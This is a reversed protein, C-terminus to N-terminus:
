DEEGITKWLCIGTTKKMVNLYENHIINEEKSAKIVRLVHIANPTSFLKESNGNTNNLFIFSIQEATMALYIDALIEADLLAGHKFRKQKSNIQYRSCLADLSNRKGPFLKRALLLTDTISCLSEINPFNGNLMKIEYNIFGIDFSANHIILEAGKIYDLFQDVIQHFFPKDLLFEITIGHISSAIPDISRNPNLYTHFNNGTLHRGSIEVCGIEIIRHGEHCIGFKNMGTTEVDVVIKRTISKKM